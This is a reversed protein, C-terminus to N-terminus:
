HLPVCITFYFNNSLRCTLPEKFASQLQLWLLRKISFFAVVIFSRKWSVETSLLKKNALSMSAVMRPWFGFARCSCSFSILKFLVEIIQFTKETADYVKYSDCKDTDCKGSSKAWHGTNYTNKQRFKQCDSSRVM